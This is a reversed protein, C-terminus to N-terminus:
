PGTAGARDLEGALRRAEGDTLNEIESLLQEFWGDSGTPLEHEAIAAAMGAVTRAEFPLTATLEVGFIRSVRAVIQSAVFSNGGLALFDEHVSVERLGLVAAWVTAVLEEFV